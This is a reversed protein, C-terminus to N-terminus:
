RRRWHIAFDFDDIAIRDPHTDVLDPEVAYVRELGLLWAIQSAAGFCVAM